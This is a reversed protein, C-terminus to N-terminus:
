EKNLIRMAENEEIVVFVPVKCAMFWCNLNLIKFFSKHSVLSKPEILIVFSCIVSGWSDPLFSKHSLYFKAETLNPCNCTGDMQGLRRLHWLRNDGMIKQFALKDDGMFKQFAVAQWM